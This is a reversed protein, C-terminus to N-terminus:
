FLFHTKTAAKIRRIQEELREEGVSEELRSALDKLISECDPQSLQGPYSSAM